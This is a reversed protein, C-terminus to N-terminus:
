TTPVEGEQAEGQPAPVRPPSYCELLECGEALAVASHPTNATVFFTDGARVVFEDGDGCTMRLGGGIVYGLEESPHAHHPVVAHPALRYVSASLHAAVRSRATIGSAVTSEPSADWGVPGSLWPATADTGASM